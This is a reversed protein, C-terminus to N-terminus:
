EVPKCEVRRVMVGLQRTDMGGHKQPSWPRTELIVSNEPQVDASPVLGTWVTDIGKEDLRVETPSLERGNWRVTMAMPRLSPPTHEVSYLIRLVRDSGTQALAFRLEGRGDTWRFARPTGTEERHYFGSGIYQADAPSGVAVDLSRVTTPRHLLVRDVNLQPGGDAEAQHRRIRIQRETAVKDEPLAVLLSHVFQDHPVAGTGIVVDGELFDLLEAGDGAKAPCLFQWEMIVRGAQPFPVPLLVSAEDQLRPKRFVLDPPLFGGQWRWRHDYVAQLDFDLEVPQGLDGGSAQIGAPLPGDSVLELRLPNTGGAQDPRIELIHAGPWPSIDGVEVGNISLRAFTREPDLTSLYGPDLALWGGGSGLEPMPIGAEIRHRTAPLIKYLTFPGTAFASLDYQEPQFTEVAELDYLRRLHVTDGYPFEPSPIVMTYVPRGAAWLADVHERIMDPEFSWAYSERLVVVQILECMNRQAFVVANEPLLPALRGAFARADAVQLPLRPAQARELHRCSVVALLLVLMWVVRRGWPVPLRRQLMRLLFCIGYGGLLCLLLTVVYFYRAIFTWYFSYFVFYVVAAPVILFLLFRQREKWAAFLGFVALLLIWPQQKMSYALAIRSISQFVEWRFHAGPVVSAEMSAQPPLFLQSTALYTQAVLPVLALLFGAAFLGTSKWFPIAGKALFWEIVGYLLMPLLMLVSPERVSCALGLLMGSVLMWAPRRVGLARAFLWVSALLFVYSLPDRYPNVYHVMQRADASIALAVAVIGAYRASDPLPSASSMLAGMRWVLVFVLVLLPLNVLFIYYPGTFPLLLKLFLPFGYPWRSLLMESWFNHAYKVWNHPDSSARIYYHTGLVHWFFVLMGAVAAVALWRDLGQRDRYSGSIM